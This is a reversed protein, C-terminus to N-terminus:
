DSQRRLAILIALHRKLDPYGWTEPLKEKLPRLKDGLRWDEAHEALIQLRETDYDLDDLPLADNGALKLLHNHITRITLDRAEAIAEPSHGEQLLTKTKQHTRSLGGPTTQGSSRNRQRSDSANESIAANLFQRLTEDPSRGRMVATGEPTLHVCGHEDRTVLGHRTLADLLFVVDKKYLSDLIGYTSLQQFGAQKVSKAGSGVLMGAVAHAGRRGDARAVGSLIKKLVRGPSESTTITRDPRIDAYVPPPDCASCHGCRRGFDPESGFHDLLRAQLCENHTAYDVLDDVKQKAARRRKQIRTFDIDLEDLTPTKLIEAHTRDTRLVDAGELLRLVSAVCMPHISSGRDDLTDALMSDLGGSPLKFRGEGRQKLLSWVRAIESRQPYSNDAFWDHIGRDAFNFLLLCWAKDGDRGARGAEQYYAEVSGPMQYHIVARVDSKDVGMGFANTAVLVTNDGRMWAAQARDRADDSLGAHYYDSSIDARQLNDHAQEVQKRTAAYVIVSGGGVDDSQIHDVLSIIRDIKQTRSRTQHTEFYLNPREFGSVLVRAGPLELQDLIDRQVDETATATLAVTQPSDLDRRVEALRRYDPRFDHGWESICHAEDIAFLGIHVDDLARCFTPSQFREPAVYAIKYDGRRIGSIRSQQENRSLGSHICTVPLGTKSLAETQDQMLAILPSVVLTLGQKLTATLQYCLSKGAGTPMVVLAHQEAQLRDIVRRQGDRFAEHGFIRHLADEPSDAFPALATAGSPQLPETATSM